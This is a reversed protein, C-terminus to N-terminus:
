RAEPPAIVREGTAWGRVAGASALDSDDPAYLAELDAPRVQSVQWDFQLVGNRLAIVRDFYRLALPVAHLSAVISRDDERGIGVLLRILDEARAPDLSSVPEDALIARPDQLLLRALAVRQQEGGSLHSTREHIKEEIGVRRLAARARDAEQPAVLSWAARLLSWEGLRGALVNHVVALSPVLDYQQHMIGVAAARERGVLSTFTRGGITLVGSSPAHIGALLYLLTTKGAGSPGMVAVREGPEIRLDLPALAETEGFRMAIGDLAFGPAGNSVGPM